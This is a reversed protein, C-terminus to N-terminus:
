LGTVRFHAANQSQRPKVISQGQILLQKVHIPRLFFDMIEVLPHDPIDRKGQINEACALQDPFVLAALDDANMRILRPPVKNGGRFRQIALACTSVWRWRIAFM